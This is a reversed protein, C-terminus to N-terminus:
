TLINELHDSKAPSTTNWTNKSKGNVVMFFEMVNRQQGRHNTSNRCRRPTPWRARQNARHSNDRKKSIDSENYSRKGSADDCERNMTKGKNQATAAALDSRFTTLIHHSKNSQSERPTCASKQLPKNKKTAVHRASNPKHKRTTKLGPQMKPGAKTTRDPPMKSHARSHEMGRLREQLLRVESDAVDSGSPLVDHLLDLRQAAVAGHHHLAVHPCDWVTSPMMSGQHISGNLVGLSVGPLKRGACGADKKTGRHARKREM